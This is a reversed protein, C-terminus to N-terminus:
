VAALNFRTDQALRRLSFVPYSAGEAAFCGSILASLPEGLGQTLEGRATPPFHRIGSLERVLLGFPFEEQRTVMIRNKASRPTALGLLFAQLDFIPLLTGRNNAVGCLWAKTAPVPTIERPVDLVESIEEIPALLTLEGVHFLVGAWEDASEQPQPLCAAVEVCRRELDRLLDLLEESGPWSSGQHTEDV